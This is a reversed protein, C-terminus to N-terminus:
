SKVSSTNPNSTGLAASVQSSLSQVSTDGSQVGALMQAAQAPTLSGNAFATLLNAILGSLTQIDTNETQIATLISAATAM